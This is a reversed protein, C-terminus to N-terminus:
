PVSGLCVPDSGGEGDQTWYVGCSTWERRRGSEFDEVIPCNM